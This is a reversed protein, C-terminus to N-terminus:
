SVSNFKTGEGAYLASAARTFPTAATGTALYATTGAAGYALLDARGDNNLDGAGVLQSFSGWGGGIRTRAAFTGNGNGLYLWLVGATDRAVLDGAAGGAIDGVATIQNYVGWGGGIRTRAAYPTQWNGTAKYLWLVGTTDTAVLDPRGDGTLDSGAAIKNYTNWGSGIRTRAAFTGDGKGLYSWLVGTTDRAVLDVAANGTHNGAAEIQNYIQWGTGIKTRRAPAVIGGPPWDFADDRWLTGSADRALLDASGNDNLDHANVKRTVKFTGGASGAYGIGNLPKALVSWTYDGNPASIGDLLGQWTFRAPSAPQTLRQTFTKGTANHKLTVDLTVNSRSLTWEMPVQTGNRELDVVGPVNSGLVQVSTPQGTGAVMSVSPAGGGLDAIRYLGEGQAADGGRVLLTGDPAHAASSLHDLLKTTAGTLINRATLAYLPNPATATAGGPQGYLVWDGIIGAVVVKPANGLPIPIPGDHNTRNEVVIETSTGQHERWALYKTSIAGTTTADWAGAGSTYAYLGGSALDYTTRSYETYAGNTASILIFVKSGSAGVIKYGTNQNGYSIQQKNLTGNSLKVVRYLHLFGNGDPLTAFVTSGVAGVFAAGNGLQSLHYTSSYGGTTMDYLAVSSSGESTAVTDSYTNFGYTGAVPTTSGDTFKTWTLTSGGAGDPTGSLFGTAGTSIIEAGVPFSVTAGATGTTTAAGTTTTTTVPAAVAPAAVLTGAVATVALVATVAAALRGGRIHNHHHSHNM